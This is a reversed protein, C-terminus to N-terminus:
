FGGGNVVQGSVFVIDGTMTGGALTLYTSAMYSSDLSITGSTTIPGGTLGTGTDIQTVTGSDSILVNQAFTIRGQADVTIQPVNAADGYTGPTVGVAAGLLRWTQNASDWEYQNQGSLPSTPYLQGNTLPPGPFSLLAM